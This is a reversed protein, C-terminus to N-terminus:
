SNLQKLFLRHLVDYEREILNRYYVRFGLMKGRYFNSTGKSGIFLLNNSLLTDQGHHSSVKEVGNVFLKISDPEDSMRLSMGITNLEGLVMINPETKYTKIITDSSITLSLSGDIDISLYWGKNLEPDFKYILCQEEPSVNPIISIFFSKVHQTINSFTSNSIDSTKLYSSGQFVLTKDSADYSFEGSASVLDDVTPLIQISNSMRNSPIIKAGMASLTEKWVTLNNQDVCFPDSSSYRAVLERSSIALSSDDGEYTKMDLFIVNERDHQFKKSNIALFGSDQFIQKRDAYSKFKTVTSRNLQDDSVFVEESLVRGSALM